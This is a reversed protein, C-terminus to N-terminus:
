KLAREVQALTTELARAAERARGPAKARRLTAIEKAVRTALKPNAAEVSKRQSAWRAEIRARVAEAAGAAEGGPKEGAEAEAWERADARMELWPSRAAETLSPGRWAAVAVEAPVGPPAAAVLAANSAEALEELTLAPVAAPSRDEDLAATSHVPAVTGIGFRAVYFALAWREADSLTDARAVMATDPVGFTVAEYVRRPSIQAAVAANTFAVPAPVLTLDTGPGEGNAGHCSACNTGYLAAGDTLRGADPASIELWLEERLRDLLTDCGLRVEAAPVKSDVAARLATLAKRTPTTLPLPSALKAADEMFEVQEEYEHTDVVRGDVVAHAYDDRVYRLRALLQNAAADPDVAPAVPGTAYATTLAVASLTSVLAIRRTRDLFM